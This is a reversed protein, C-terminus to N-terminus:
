VLRELTVGDMWGINKSAAMKLCFEKLKDFVKEGEKVTITVTTRHHLMREYAMLQGKARWFKDKPSCFAAGVIFSEPDMQATATIIHGKIAGKKNLVHITRYYVMPAEVKRVTENM